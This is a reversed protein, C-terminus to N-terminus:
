NRLCTYPNVGYSFRKTQIRCEKLLDPIQERKRSQNKRFTIIDQYFKIQEFFCISPHEIGKVLQRYFAAYSLTHKLSNSRKGSDNRYELSIFIYM